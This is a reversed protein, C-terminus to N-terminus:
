KGLHHHTQTVYTSEALSVDGSSLAESSPEPAFVNVFPDNDVPALPNDEIITSKAAIGQQLSLSQLASSSLSHSPSPADQAITTSSPTSTSNVPVPVALAPSVLYGEGSARRRLVVFTRARYRGGNFWGGFIVVRHAYDSVYVDCQTQTGEETWDYCSHTDSLYSICLEDSTARDRSNTSCYEQSESAVHADDIPQTVGRSM